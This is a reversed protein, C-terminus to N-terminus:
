WPNCSNERQGDCREELLSSNELGLPLLSWEAVARGWWVCM